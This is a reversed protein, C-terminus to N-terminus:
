VTKELPLIITLECGKGKSSNIFLHGSFLEARRKMNAIGIGYKVTNIDFGLGNDAIRMHLNDNNMFVSVEINTCHAHAIINRLQEQLIRYLNLQIEQKIEMGKSRKDFHISITYSGDINFTKFLSEIAVELKTNDFFAPALRHSLNRIEKTALLIAESSKNYSEIAAPMLSCKMMGLSMKAAALIQCVNDHLESGIEYREDEQTKIIAKTIKNEMHNRETVDLSISLICKKEGILSPSTYVETEIKEGGKKLHYFNYKRTKDQSLGLTEAKVRQVEESDKVIDKANRIDYITMNLFESEAYGYHDCAANNVSLFRNTEPDIVWMPIPALKFFNRFKFESAILSEELKKKQTVDNFFGMSSNFIGNTYELYITGELYVKKGSKSKCVKEVNAIVNRKKSPPKFPMADEHLLDSITLNSLEEESYEFTKRFSENAFVFKGGADCKGIIENTQETLTRYKRESEKLAFTTRQGKRGIIILNFGMSVLLVILGTSIWVNTNNIRIIQLDMDKILKQDSSNAANILMSSFQEYEHYVPALDNEYNKKLAVYKGNEMQEFFQDLYRKKAASVTQLQSFLQHEKNNELLKESTALLSDNAKIQSITRKVDLPNTNEPYSYFLKLLSVEETLNGKYLDTFVSQRRNAAPVLQVIAASAKRQNWFQRNRSIVLLIFFAIYTLLLVGATTIGPLYKKM